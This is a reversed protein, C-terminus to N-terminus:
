REAKERSGSGAIMHNSLVFYTYNCTTIVPPPDTCGTRRGEGARTETEGVKTTKMEPACRGGRGM